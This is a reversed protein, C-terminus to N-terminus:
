GGLNLLIGTTIPNGVNSPNLRIARRCDFGQALLIEVGVHSRIKYALFLLSLRSSLASQLLSFVTGCVM